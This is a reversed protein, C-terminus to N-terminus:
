DWRSRRERLTYEPVPRNESGRRFGLAHWSGPRPSHTSSRLGIRDDNATLVATSIANTLNFVQFQDFVNLVQVARVASCTASGFRQQFSFSLDTRV